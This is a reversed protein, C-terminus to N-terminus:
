NMANVKNRWNLLTEIQDKFSVPYRVGSIRELKEKEEAKKEIMLISAALIEVLKKAKRSM